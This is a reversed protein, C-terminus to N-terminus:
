TTRNSYKNQLGQYDITSALM